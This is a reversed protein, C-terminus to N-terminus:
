MYPDGAAADDEGDVNVSECMKGLLDCMKRAKESKSMKDYDASKKMAKEMDQDLRRKAWKAESPDAIKSEGIDIPDWVEDMNGEANIVEPMADKTALSGRKAWVAPPALLLLSASAAAISSRRSLSNAREAFNREGAEEGGELARDPSTPRQPQLFATQLLGHCLWLLGLALLLSARAGHRHRLLTASRM